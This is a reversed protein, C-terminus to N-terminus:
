EPIERLQEFEPITLIPEYYTLIFRKIQKM